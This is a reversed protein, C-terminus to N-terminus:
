ILANSLNVLLINWALKSVLPPSLSIPVLSSVFYFVKKTLQSNIYLILKKLFIFINILLFNLDLHRDKIRLSGKRDDFPLNSLEYECQMNHIFEITSDLNKIIEMQQKKNM